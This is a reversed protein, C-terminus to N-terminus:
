VVTFFVPNTASGTGGLPLEGFCIQWDGAPKVVPGSTNPTFGTSNSFRTNANIPGPQDMCAHDEHGPSTNTGAVLKFSSNARAKTAFATIVTGSPGSKSFSGDSYWTNGQIVTCAWAVSGVALAACTAAVGGLVLRRRSITRDKRGVRV